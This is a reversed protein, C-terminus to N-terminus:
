RKLLSKSAAWPESGLGDDLSDLSAGAHWLKSQIGVERLGNHIRRAAIAAGGTLMTNFHDVYIDM